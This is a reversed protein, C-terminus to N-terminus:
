LVGGFGLLMYTGVATMALYSTVVVLGSWFKDMRQQHKVESEFKLTSM